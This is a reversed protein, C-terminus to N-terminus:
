IIQSKLRNFAPEKLISSKPSPTASPTPTASLNPAFYPSPDASTRTSPPKPAASEVIPPNGLVHVWASYRVVRWALVFGSWALLAGFCSWLCSVGCLHDEPTSDKARGNSEPRDGNFQM